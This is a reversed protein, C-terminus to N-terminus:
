KKEPDAPPPQFDPAIKELLEAVERQTKELEDLEERDADNM